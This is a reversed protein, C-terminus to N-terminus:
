PRPRATEPHILTMLVELGQMIRPGPRLLTDDRLITVKGERAARLRSWGPLDALAAPGEGGMLDLVIMDPDAALLSEVSLLPYKVGTSNLANVAGAQELLHNLFTGPGVGVLPNQGILFLVRPRPLGETLSALEARRAMLAAVLDRAEADRGTLDGIERIAAHIDDITRTDIVYVALGLRDLQIIDSPRNGDATGIVLDPKLSVIVELSPNVFGGVKARSAAEPPYDDFDTVGAVQGGAGVAFLIETINPALSVIRRPHEAVNVKRGVRDTFERGAAASAPLAAALFIILATGLRRGM